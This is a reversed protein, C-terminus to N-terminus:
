IKNDYEKCNIEILYKDGWDYIDEFLSNAKNKELGHIMKAILKTLDNWANVEISLIDGKKSLLVKKYQDMFWDVNNNKLYEKYINSINITLKWEADTVDEFEDLYLIKYM